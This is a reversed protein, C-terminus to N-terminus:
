KREQPNKGRAVFVCAVAERGGGPGQLVLFMCTLGGSGEKRLNGLVFFTQAKVFDGIQLPLM